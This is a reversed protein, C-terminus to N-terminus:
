QRPLNEPNGFEIRTLDARRTGTADVYGIRGSAYNDLSWSANPGNTWDVSYGGKELRWKGSLATGDPLLMHAKDADQYYIVAEKGDLDLVHTAGVMIAALAPEDLKAM